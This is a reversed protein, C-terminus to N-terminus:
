VASSTCRPVAQLSSMQCCALQLFVSSRGSGSHLLGLMGILFPSVSTFAPFLQFAPIRGSPVHARRAVSPSLPAQPSPPEAGPIHSCVSCGWPQWQELHGRRSHDGQAAAPIGGGHPQPETDVCQWSTHELDLWLELLNERKM